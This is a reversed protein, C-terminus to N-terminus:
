QFKVIKIATLYDLGFINQNDEEIWIAVNDGVAYESFEIAIDKDQSLNHLVFETNDNVVVTKIIEKQPAENIFKYVNVKINLKRANDVYIKDIIGDVLHNHIPVSGTDPTGTQQNLHETINTQMDLSGINTIRKNKIIVGLLIGSIIVGIVVFVGLQYKSYQKLNM